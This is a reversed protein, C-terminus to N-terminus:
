NASAGNGTKAMGGVLMAQGNGWGQRWEVHEASGPPFPNNDASEGNRGAHQGQLEADMATAPAEDEGGVVFLNYQTGLPHDLLRLIRGVNRHETVVEGSTRKGLKLVLRIAEVDCGDKKAVKYRNRLVGRQENAAAVLEDLAIQDAQILRVNTLYTEDSPGSNHGGKANAEQAAKALKEIAEREADPGAFDAHTDPRKKKAM